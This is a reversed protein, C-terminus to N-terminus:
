HLVANNHQEITDLAKRFSDIVSTADEHDLAGILRCLTM